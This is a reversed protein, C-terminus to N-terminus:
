GAELTTVRAKLATNETELTDIKTSLENLANVLVPVLREYKLGYASDDCNLNVILMDDKNTPNGEVALVEQALFGIHKKSKKHQGDPTVSLDESYWARKDWKYTVPRLQKVWDMGHTFNTVDTKDRSDSSSISTDACYLDSISNNGLCIVNDETDIRGSPSADRGANYGLGMSNQSSNIERLAARGIGTCYSASRVDEGAGMGMFVNEHGTGPNAQSAGRGAEHGVCTNYQGTTYFKMSSTGVATNYSTTGYRFAGHGMAVNYDGNGTRLAEYGIATNYTGTTLTTAAEYGVVVNSRGTTINAGAAYGVLTQEHGSTVDYGARYGLAVNKSGTCVKLAEHGIAVNQTDGSQTMLASHGLAINQGGTTNAAM